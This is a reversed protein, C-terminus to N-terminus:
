SNILDISWAFIQYILFTLGVIILLIIVILTIVVPWASGEHKDGEFHDQFIDLNRKNAKFFLDFIDGIVPITGITADLSTNLIMLSLAKGSAGRRIMIILLIGSLGLTFIDGVIPFLGIIFDLGFTINTGPIRFRTDLWDAYRELRKSEVEM